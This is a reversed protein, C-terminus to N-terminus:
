VDDLFNYGKGMRIKEFLRGHRENAEANGYSRTKASMGQRFVKASKMYNRDDPSLYDTWKGGKKAAESKYHQHKAAVDDFIDSAGDFASARMGRRTRVKSMRGNMKDLFGTMQKTNGTNMGFDGGVNRVNADPHEHQHRQMVNRWAQHREDLTLGGSYRDPDIIDNGDKDKYIDGEAAGHFFRDHMEKLGEPSNVKSLWYELGDEVQEVRERNPINRNAMAMLQGDGSLLSGSTVGYKGFVAWEVEDRGSGVIRKREKEAEERRKTYDQAINRDIGIAAGGIAQRIRGAGEQKGWRGIKTRRRGRVSRMNEIRQARWSNPDRHEGFIRQNMGKGRRDLGNAVEAVAQGAFRFTAPIMFYPAFLTIIGLMGTLVSEASGDAATNAGVVIKAMLEGSAMLAVILPYMMMLKWFYEWWKKFIKETNPLVWAVFAVPAIVILVMVMLRRAILTIVVLLVGMVIPFLVLPIGSLLGGQLALVIGTTTGVIGVAAAIENWIGAFDLNVEFNIGEIPALILGRIGAGLVNFVDLAFGVLYWSLQVGIIGLVLRPIIKRIEYANFYSFSSLSQGFVAALFVIFFLVNALIRFNNWIEYVTADASFPDESDTLPDIILLPVIFGRYLVDVARFLGDIIPCLLWKFIINFRGAKCTLVKDERDDVLQLAVIDDYLDTDQTINITAQATQGEFPTFTNSCETAYSNPANLKACAVHVTSPYDPDVVLVQTSVNTNGATLTLGPIWVSDSLSIQTTENGEIIDITMPGTALDTSLANDVTLNITVQIGKANELKELILYFDAHPEGYGGGDSLGCDSITIPESSIIRGSGLADAFVVFEGNYAGDQPLAPSPTVLVAQTSDDVNDYKLRGSESWGDYAYTAIIEGGQLDVIFHGPDPDSHLQRMAYVYGNVDACAPPIDQAKARQPVATWVSMLSLMFVLVLLIIRSANKKLNLM